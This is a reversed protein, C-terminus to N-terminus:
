FISPPNELFNINMNISGRHNSQCTTDQMNKEIVIYALILPKHHELVLLDKQPNQQYSYTLEVLLHFFLAPPSSIHSTNNLDQICHLRLFHIWMKNNQTFCIMWYIFNMNWVITTSQRFITNMCLISAFRKDIKKFMLLVDLKSNSQLVKHWNYLKNEIKKGLGKKLQLWLNPLPSQLRLQRRKCNLSWLRLKKSSETLKKFAFAM